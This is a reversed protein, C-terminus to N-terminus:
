PLRVLRLSELDFWADGASARLECLLEVETEPAALVFEINSKTWPSDGMFQHPAAQKTTSVRLGAGKNKGYALPKVGATRATGEFRYRGATLLVKARWSASTTPGAKICLAAKGDPARAQEMAGGTPADVARWAPLRAVGDTFALPKLEPEQLQKALYALRRVIREDLQRAADAQERAATGELAPRIRASLQEVRNTLVEARFLNTLLVAARELYLRRGITTEMVARAVPGGMNARLPLDARGFLQDMGHPIFAFRQAGPDFYLRYNNAALSYGDRHGAMVEVAMFTLFQDLDLMEQLRQWRRAHDPEAAAALLAQVDAGDDPGSGSNRKMHTRDDDTPDNEYLNGDIRRFHLALFERAFGEKLVYLGLKRGNIEVLAHTVRAAPVGAARFLEAGIAENLYGPDEVSNNLHIRSLGHFRQATAFKDFDLTLAPKDDLGRFSGTRGKLHVAVNTYTIQGSQVSANVFERPEKRLSELDAPAVEIRIPIVKEGAFLEAGPAASQPNGAAQASHAGGSQWGLCLTIASLLLLLSRLLAEAFRAQTLSAQQHVNL